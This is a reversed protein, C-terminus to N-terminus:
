FSAKLGGWTDHELAAPPTNAWEAFNGALELNDNSNIYSETFMNHDGFVLIRGGVTFGTGPELVVMFDSGLGNNGLLLADSGYTFTSETNYYYSGVGDTIAHSTVPYGAGVHGLASYGTVGYYATFSEYAPMSLIDSTVILVGGAAIWDHLASQEAGSLAGTSTSLLSTYFVDVGSLYAATLLSTPPAITGGAAEIVGRLTAHASGTLTGSSYNIRSSDFSGWLVEASVSGTPVLLMMMMILRM